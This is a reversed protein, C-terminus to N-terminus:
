HIPTASERERRGRRDPVGAPPPLRELLVDLNMPTLLRACYQQAVRLRAVADPALRGAAVIGSFEEVRAVIARGGQLDHLTDISIEGPRDLYIPLLGSQVAQVVATTGRYLTWASQAIDEDLTTGSSLTINPPLNRLAPNQATLEPYSINPHLRWIFRMAPCAAACAMSFDFLANCESAVGEPLVLCADGTRSSAAQHADGGAPAPSFTRNSGLVETHPTYDTGRGRLRDMAIGGSTLVLDPNFRPALDRQLAHQLNFLVAHQYGICAIAPDVSRAAAFALREWSHGEHTIMLARPRVAAVLRRVQEATRLAALTGGSRAELAARAVFRREWPSMAPTITARLRQGERRMSAQMSLEDSTGLAASLIVRPVSTDSWRGALSKADAGSYDILAIVASRGALALRSPIDGFYFDSDKGAFSAAVLHSVILVDVQDPLPGSATWPAANGMGAKAVFRLRSGITRLRRYETRLRSRTSVPEFLDAYLSLFMPHARIVHLWPIAVTEFSADPATLLRDGSQCLQRFQQENM